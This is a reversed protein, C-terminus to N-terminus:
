IDSEKSLKFKLGSTALIHSALSSLNDRVQRYFKLSESEKMNSFHFKDDNELYSTQCQACKM